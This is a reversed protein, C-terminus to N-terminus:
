KFISKFHRPSNAYNVKRFGYKNTTTQFKVLCDVKINIWHKGFLHTMLIVTLTNKFYPHKQLANNYDFLDTWNLTPNLTEENLFDELLMQYLNQYLNKSLHGFLTTDWLDSWHHINKMHKYFTDYQKYTDNYFYKLRLETRYKKFDEYHNYM